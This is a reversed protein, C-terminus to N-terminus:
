RFKSELEKVENNFKYVDAIIGRIKKEDRYVRKCFYGKPIRPDYAVFDCWDKECIWLQGQIQAMHETPVKDAMVWRMFTKTEPCKIELLGDLPMGDPSCGTDDDYEVFGVQVVENGTIFEYQERAAPETQTGWIMAPSTYYKSLEGSLREAALEFMYNTRGKLEPGKSTVEKFRSGTTRGLRLLKWELKGQDVQDHIIM